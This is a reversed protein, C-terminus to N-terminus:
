INGKEIEYLNCIILKCKCIGINVALLKQVNNEKKKSPANHAYMVGIYLVRLYQISM